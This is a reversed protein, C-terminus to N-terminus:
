KKGEQLLKGENDYKYNPFNFNSNKLTKEIDIKQGCNQCIIQMPYYSGHFTIKNNCTPCFIHPLMQEAFIYDFM